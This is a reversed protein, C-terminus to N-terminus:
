DNGFVLRKIKEYAWVAPKSIKMAIFDFCKIYLHEIYNKRILDIFSSLVYVLACVGISYLIILNSNQFSANKFVDIWLYNRLLPSDHLLYVGFTATAITNISKNYFPKIKVFGAFLLVASFLTPIKNRGYFYLYYKSVAPFKTGATLIFISSLYTILLFLGFMAFCRKSSLKNNIGYIKVYGAISYLCVFEILQNIQFNVNILTPIICWWTTLLILLNRYQNKDLKHLLVNIYPHLIFLM